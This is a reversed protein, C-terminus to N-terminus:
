LCKLKLIRDFISWFILWFKLLNKLRNQISKPLSKPVNQCGFHMLFDISIKSANKSARSFTGSCKHPRGPPIHLTGPPFLLPTYPDWFQWLISSCLWPSGSQYRARRRRHPPPGSRANRRAAKYSFDTYYFNPENTQNEKKAQNTRRKKPRQRRTRFGDTNESVM